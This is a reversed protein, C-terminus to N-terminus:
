AGWKPPIMYYKDKQLLTNWETYNGGSEDM